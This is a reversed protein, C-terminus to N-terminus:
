QPLKSCFQELIAKGVVHMVLGGGFLMAIHDIEPAGKQVDSRLQEILATKALHLTANALSSLGSSATSDHEVMRLLRQAQAM